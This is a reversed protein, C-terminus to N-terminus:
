GLGGDWRKVAMTMHVPPGITRSRSLPAAANTDTVKHCKRQCFRWVITHPPAMSGGNSPVSLTYKNGAVSTEQLARLDAGLSSCFECLQRVRESEQRFPLGGVNYSIVRFLSPPRANGMSCPDGYHKYMM